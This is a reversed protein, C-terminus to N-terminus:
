HLLSKVDLVGVINLDQGVEQVAVVWVDLHFELCWVFINEKSYFVDIDAVEFLTLHEFNM